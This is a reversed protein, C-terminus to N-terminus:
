FQEVAYGSRAARQIFLDRAVSFKLIRCAAIAVMPDDTPALPEIPATELEEILRGVERRSMAQGAVSIIETRAQSWFPGGVTARSEFDCERAAKAYNEAVISLGLPFAEQRRQEMWWWAAGAIVLGILAFQVWKLVAAM